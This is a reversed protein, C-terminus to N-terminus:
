KDCFYLRENRDGSNVDAAVYSASLRDLLSEFAAPAYRNLWIYGHETERRYLVEPDRPPQWFCIIVYRRAVRFMERVATEYYPLHELLHRSTVVDFSDAKFALDLVNMEVWRAGPHRARCDDLVTRGVDIGTYDVALGSATLREYTVGSMVGCDLLDFSRNAYRQRLWSTTADHSAAEGRQARRMYDADTTSRWLSDSLEFQTM